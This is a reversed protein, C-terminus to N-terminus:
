QVTKIMAEMTDDLLQVTNLKKFGSRRGIQTRSGRPDILLYLPVLILVSRCGDQVQNAM